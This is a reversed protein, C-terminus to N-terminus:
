DVLFNKLAAEARERAAEMRLRRIELAEEHVASAEATRGLRTLLSGCLMLADCLVPVRDPDAAALRRWIGVSEEAFMLAEATRGLNGLLTSRLSLVEALGAEVDPDSLSMRRLIEISLDVPALAEDARDLNGLIVGHVNLADLLVPEFGEPDSAALARYFGAGEAGPPLAEAFREMEYLTRARLVLMEALRARVGMSDPADTLVLRLAVVAKDSAALLREQREAEVAAASKAAVDARGRGLVRRAVGAIWTM